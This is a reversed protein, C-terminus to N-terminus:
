IPYSMRFETSPMAAAPPTHLPRALIRNPSSERTHDDTVCAGAVDTGPVLCIDSCNRARPKM